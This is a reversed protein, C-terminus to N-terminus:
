FRTVRSFVGNATPKVLGSLIQNVIKPISEKRPQWASSNAKVQLSGVKVEQIGDMDGDTFRDEELSALVLELVGYKVKNPIIDSAIYEDLKYDYAEFRPWELAQTSSTRSGNFDMFWDIQNTATILFSDPDEIEDWATAYNRSEFYADAEALTVYSNSVEGGVTADISM